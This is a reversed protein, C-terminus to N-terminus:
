YDKVALVYMSKKTLMEIEIQERQIEFFYLINVHNRGVDFQKIIGDDALVFWQEQYGTFFSIKRKLTGEM